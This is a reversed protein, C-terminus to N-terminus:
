RASDLEQPLYTGEVWVVRQRDLRELLTRWAFRLSQGSFIKEMPGWDDLMSRTPAGTSWVILPVRLQALYARAAAATYEGEARSGGHLLLVARRRGSELAMPGAVIVADALRVTDGGAPFTAAALNALLGGGASADPATSPFLRYSTEVNGQAITWLLRLHVEPNGPTLMTDVHPGRTRAQTGDMRLGPLTRLARPDVVVILDAPGKEVVIVSVPQGNATLAVESSKPDEIVTSSLEASAEQVHRGGFVVDRSVTGAKDFRAEVRLLHITSLDVPPLRFVPSNSIGIPAGDLTVTLQRLKEGEVTDATVRGVLGEGGDNSLVVELEAWPRPLNLWQRVRSIERGNADRAIAVLERPSPADGLALPLTWPAATVTGAPIDDLMVEVAAVEHGVVVGVNVTGSVIGLFQRAFAIAPRRERPEVPTAAPLRDRLSGAPPVAAPPVAPAAAASRTEAVVPPVATFSRRLVGRRGLHPVTVVAEAVYEGPPVDAFASLTPKEIDGRRWLDLPYTHMLVRYTEALLVGDKDRLRMHVTFQAAAQGDKEQYGLEAPEIVFRLPVVDAEAGEIEQRVPPDTEVAGRLEPLEEAARRGEFGRGFTMRVGPRSSQVSMRRLRRPTLPEADSLSISLDYAGELQAAAQRLGEDVRTAAVFTGGTVTAIENLDQQGMFHPMSMPRAGPQFQQGFRASVDSPARSRDVFSLSVRNRFARAFVEDLRPRLPEEARASQEWEAIAPMPGFVARLAEAAERAPSLSVNGGVVLVSKHGDLGEAYGVVGDLAEVFTAGRHQVEGVYETAGDRMCQEQQEPFQEMEVCLSLKQLLEQMVMESALRARAKPDGYIPALAATVLKRDGTFPVLQRLEGDFLLLAVHFSPHLENELFAKLSEMARKREIPPDNEVDVVVVMYRPEAAATVAVAPRGGDLQTILRVRPLAARTAPESLYRTLSEVRYTKKGERVTVEDARLDTVPRGKADRAQVPLTVVRVDVRETFQALAGPAISLVILLVAMPRHM